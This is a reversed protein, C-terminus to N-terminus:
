QESGEIDNSSGEIHEGSGEIQPASGEIRVVHLEFHQWESAYGMIRNLTEMLGSDNAWEGDHYAELDVEICGDAYQYIRKQKM